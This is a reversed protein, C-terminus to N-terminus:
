PRGWAHIVPGGFPGNTRRLPANGRLGALRHALVRHRTIEKSPKPECYAHAPPSRDSFEVVVLARIRPRAKVERQRVRESSIGLQKGIERLTEGKERAQVITRDTESLASLDPAVTAICPGVLRDGITGAYKGDRGSIPTETSDARNLADLKRRKFLSLISGRICPRAYSPFHGRGPDFKLAANILGDEAGARLEDHSVGLGHYKKTLAWALPLYSSVLAFQAESLAQNLEESIGGVPGGLQKGYDKFGPAALMPSREMEAWM